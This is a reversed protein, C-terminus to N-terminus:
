CMPVFIWIRGSFHELNKCKGEAGYVYEMKKKKHTNLSINLKLL